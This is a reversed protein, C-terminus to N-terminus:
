LRWEVFILNEMWPLKVTTIQWPMKDILVDYSQEKVQLVYNGDRTSIMGERHMFMQRFGDSSMNKLVSWHQIVTNVLTDAEAIEQKSLQVITPVAENPDLGCLVKNLILEYEKFERNGCALYQLLCIARLQKERNIFQNSEMLGAAELFRSLFPWFLVLGSNNIHLEKSDAFLDSQKKKRDGVPEKIDDEKQKKVDLEEAPQSSVEHDMVNSRIASRESSEEWISKLTSTSSQILNLIQRFHDSYVKRDASVEERNITQIRQNLPELTEGLLNVATILRHKVPINSADLGELVDNISLQMERIEKLCELLAYLADGVAKLKNKDHDSFINLVKSEFMANSIQTFLQNLLSEQDLAAVIAANKWIRKQIKEKEVAGDVAEGSFPKHSLSKSADSQGTAAKQHKRVSLKTTLLENLKEESLLESSYDRLVQFCAQWIEFPINQKSKDGIGASYGLQKISYDICNRVSTKDLKSIIEIIRELQEYSLQYVMRRIANLDFFLEQLLKTFGSDAAQLKKDMLKSLDPEAQKHSWWPLRGTKLFHALLELESEVVSTKYRVLADEETAGPYAGSESALKDRLDISKQSSIDRIVQTLANHFTKLIKPKLDRVLNTEDVTGLDIELRNIKYVEDPDGIEDCCKELIPVIETYFIDSLESKFIFSGIDTELDVDLIQRKIVHHQEM